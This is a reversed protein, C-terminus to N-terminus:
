TAHIAVLTVDDDQPSGDQYLGLKIALSECVGQGSLGILQAFEDELRQRGFEQGHPNRCDTMGDTFLLVSSGPPM